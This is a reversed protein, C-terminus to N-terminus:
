NNKEGILQICRALSSIVQKMGMAIQTAPANLRSALNALVEEKSPLDAIKNLEETSYFASDMVGSILKLSTNQSEFERLTKAVAPFNDKTFAVGIPGSLKDAWKFNEIDKRKQLALKFINNKIVRYHAEKAHLKNRLGNIEVVSLGRYKTFIFNPKDQVLAEYEKKLNINLQSPM